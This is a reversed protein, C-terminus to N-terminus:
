AIAKAPGQQPEAITSVFNGSMGRRRGAGFVTVDHGREALKDVLAACMAEVGGYGAPPLEYRPPVVM